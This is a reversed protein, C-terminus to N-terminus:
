RPFAVRVTLMPDADPGHLAELQLLAGPLWARVYLGILDSVDDPMPMGYVHRRIGLFVVSAHLAMALEREGRMLGRAGFDPLGAAHRLERVIPAFVRRTRQAGFRGTAQQGDLGARVWLRMSVADSRGRYAEYFRILRTDLPESRDELAESWAQQWRGGFRAELVADFLAQKSPFYRYLLAQTVGMAAAIERTSGAFGKDAFLAAATDLIRARRDDGSM